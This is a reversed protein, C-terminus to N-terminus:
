HEQGPSQLHQSCHLGSTGARPGVGVGTEPHTIADLVRGAGWPPSGDEKLRFACALSGSFM